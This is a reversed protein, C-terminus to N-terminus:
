TCVSQCDTVPKVFPMRGKLYALENQLKTLLSRNIIKGRGFDEVGGKLLRGGILWKVAKHFIGFLLFDLRECGVDELRPIDAKFQTSHNSHPKSLNFIYNFINQAKVGGVVLKVHQHIYLHTKCKRVNM